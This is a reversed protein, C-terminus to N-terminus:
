QAESRDATMQEGTSGSPREFFGDLSAYQDLVKKLCRPNSHEADIYLEAGCGLDYPSFSGIIPLGYKAALARTEEKVKELGAEYPSGRVADYFIPNFPPHALIVEVGQESLFALVRDVTAVGFPDIKPPDDRRQEAFELARARAYDASFLADHKRSWKISGDSLLIDLSDHKEASTAHPLDPAENWRKAHARLLALSVAQRIHPLPITDFWSHMPIGLQEAMVRYYPIAPMWLFDTRDAVPTFYNDRITIILRRPLRDASVFMETVALVDEYYDRHVHANYFDRDPLLDSHAEQWHSAGIVAVDPVKALSHIHARRLTRSEINLDFTAYNKGTALTKAVDKVASRDFLLPAFRANGYFILGLGLISFVLLLGIHVLPQLFQAAEQDDKAAALNPDDQARRGPNSRPLFRRDVGTREVITESM